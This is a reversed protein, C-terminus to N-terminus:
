RLPLIIKPARQTTTNLTLDCFAELTEDLDIDLEM